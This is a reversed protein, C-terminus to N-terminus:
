RTKDRRMAVALCVRPSAGAASQQNFGTIALSGGALFAVSQLQMPSGADSLEVSGVLKFKCSGTGLAAEMEAVENLDYLDVRCASAGVAALRGSTALLSLRASSPGDPPMYAGAAGHHTFVQHLLSM